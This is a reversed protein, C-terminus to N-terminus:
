PKKKKKKGKAHNGNGNNNLPTISSLVSYPTCVWSNGSKEVFGAFELHAEGKGIVEYFILGFVTRSGLSNNALTGTKGKNWSVQTYLYSFNFTTSESLNAESPIFTLVVCNISDGTQSSTRNMGPTDPLEVSVFRNNVVAPSQAMTLSKDKINKYYTTSSKPSYGSGYTKYTTDNQYPRYSRESFVLQNKIVIAPGYGYGFYENGDKGFENKDKDVLVFDQRVVYVVENLSKILPNCNDTIGILQATAVGSRILLFVLLSTKLFQM